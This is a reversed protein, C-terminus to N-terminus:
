FPTRQELCRTVTELLERASHEDEAIREWVRRLEALCRAKAEERSRAIPFTREHLDDRRATGAAVDAKQLVRNVGAYGAFRYTLSTEKVILSEVQAVGKAYRVYYLKM